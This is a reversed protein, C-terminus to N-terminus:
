NPKGNPPTPQQPPSQPTTTAPQKNAADKEAKAAEAAQKKEEEELKKAEAENEHARKIENQIQAIVPNEKRALNAAQPLLAELKKIQAANAPSYDSNAVAIDLMQDLALDGQGAALLLSIYEFKFTPSTVYESVNQYIQLREQDLKQKEPGAPTDADIQSFCAFALLAATRPDASDGSTVKDLIERYAAIRKQLNQAGAFEKSKSGSKIESYDHLLKWIEVKWDIKANKTAEDISRGL